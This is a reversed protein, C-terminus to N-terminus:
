LVSFERHAHVLNEEKKYVGAQYGRQGMASVLHAPKYPKWSEIGRKMRMLSFSLINNKWWPHPTVTGASSLSFLPQCIKRVRHRLICIPGPICPMCTDQGNARPVNAKLSHNLSALIYAIHSLTEETIIFLILSWPLIELERGIGGWDDALWLMYFLREAEMRHWGEGVM